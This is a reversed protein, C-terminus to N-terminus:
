GSQRLNSDQRSLWNGTDSNSQPAGDIAIQAGFIVSQSKKKSAHGLGHGMFSNESKEIKPPHIAIISISYL